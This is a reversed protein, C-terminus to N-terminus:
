GVVTCVEDTCANRRHLYVDFYTFRQAEIVEYLEDLSRKVEPSHEHLTERKRNEDPQTRLITYNLHRSSFAM